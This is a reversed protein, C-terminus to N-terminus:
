IPPSIKGGLVDRFESLVMATAGWVVKNALDFYPVGKLQHGRVMMDKVKIHQATLIHNLPIELLSKVEQIEPKFTPTETVYGVFPHVLFNSVGVFVTSLPGITQILDPHVGIEEFTERIATQELTENPEKKGGPLSIQHQHPDLHHGQREILVFYIDDEKPYLLIMVGALKPSDDHNFTFKRGFRAM